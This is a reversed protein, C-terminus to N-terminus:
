FHKAIKRILNTTSHGRALKITSVRGGNALVIDSGVIDAKKWDAGKVLVDPKIFKILKLPTDENFLAAYDVSELAAVLRVRETENVVPRNKGKIRRISADSNVGVVLIDGKKKAEQLYKVHGYHILDFCGNTFVISSGKAKLRAIIKKLGGLTRVKDEFLRLTPM